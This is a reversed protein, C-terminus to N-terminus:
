KGLGWKSLDRCEGLVRVRNSLWQVADEGDLPECIWSHTRHSHQSRALYPIPFLIQYMEAMFEPM